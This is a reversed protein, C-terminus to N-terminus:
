RASAVERWMRVNSGFEPDQWPEGITTFGLRAFLMAGGPTANCWVVGAGRDAVHALAAEVVRTGVGRGRWREATALRRLRWGRGPHDPLEPCSEPFVAVCSVVVGLADRAAYTAVDPHDEGSVRAAEAPAGGHLVEARLQHTEAAQVRAVSFIVDETM